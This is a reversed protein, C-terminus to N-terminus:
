EVHTTARAVYEELLQMVQPIAVTATYLAHYYPIRRVQPIVWAGSALRISAECMIWRYLHDRSLMGCEGPDAVVWDRVYQPGPVLVLVFDDYLPLIDRMPFLSGCGNWGIEPLVQSLDENNGCLIEIMTFVYEELGSPLIYLSFDERSHSHTRWSQIM